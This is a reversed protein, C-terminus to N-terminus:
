SGAAVSAVVSTTAPPALCRRIAVVLFISAAIQLVVGGVISPLTDFEPNGFVGIPTLWSLSSRLVFIAITFAAVYYLFLFLAGKVVPNRFGKAVCWQLFLVDRVAFVLLVSFLGAFTGVSWESFPVVHRVAVAELVLLVFAAIASAVMWPWPPGDDSYYFQANLPSLRRWVRLRGPPTLTTLGVVYLILFNLGLYCDAVDSAPGPVLRRLDLLALVLVNLYAAFGAAQWRSLFRIDERDKKLNRVLVLLLWAGASAYLVVSVFLSPVEVGFFPVPTFVPGYPNPLVHYLPLLGGVVLIATLGPFPSDSGIGVLAGWAGVAIVFTLLLVEGARPRDTTMSITLTALSLVVSVLFLMLYTVVIALLSFGAYLGLFLTFPLTCVMVFYAMLPVGFVMGALLEWSTLRTTRLFDFTKLSRESCIAQSCSSLCWFCLVLAQTSALIIYLIAALDRGGPASTADFGRHFFILLFLACLLVSVIAATAMRVPRLEVRAHRILEPNRWLPQM